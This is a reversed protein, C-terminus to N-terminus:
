PVCDPWKRCTPERMSFAIYRVKKFAAMFARVAVAVHCAHSCKPPAERSLSAHMLTGFVRSLSAHMFVGFVLREIQM